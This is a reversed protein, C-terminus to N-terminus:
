RRASERDRAGLQLAHVVQPGDVVRLRQAGRELVAPPGEHEDPGPPDPHLDRRGRACEAVRHGNELVTVDWERARDPVLQAPHERLEVLLVANHKAPRDRDLADGSGVSAGRAHHDVAALDHRRVEHHDADPCDRVDFERVERPQIDVVADEHIRRQLCAMRIDEGRAVDGVGEM